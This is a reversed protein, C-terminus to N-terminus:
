YEINLQETTSPPNVEAYPWPEITRNLTILKAMRLMDSRSICLELDSFFLEQVGGGGGPPLSSKQGVGGGFFFHKM